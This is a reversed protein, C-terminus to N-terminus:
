KLAEELTDEGLAEHHGSLHLMIQRIARAHLKIEETRIRRATETEAAEKAVVQSELAGLDNGLVGQRCAIRIANGDSVTLVGGRLACYEWAAGAKRWRIVTPILVTLLDVHGPLIGFGGSQDEGRFSAVGPTNVIVQLPTSIVLSLAQPIM